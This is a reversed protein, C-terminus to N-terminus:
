CGPKAAISAPLPKSSSLTSVPGMTMPLMKSLTMRKIETHMEAYRCRPFLVDRMCGIETSGHTLTLRSFSLSGM